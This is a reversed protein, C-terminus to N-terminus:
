HFLANIHHFERKETSFPANQKSLAATIEKIERIESIKRILYHSFDRCIGAEIMEEERRAVAAAAQDHLNPESGRGNWITEFVRNREEKKQQTTKPKETGWSKARAM